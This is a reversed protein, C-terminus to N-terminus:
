CVSTKMIACTYISLTVFWNIKDTMHVFPCLFLVISIFIPGLM